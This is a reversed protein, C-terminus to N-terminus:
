EVGVSRHPVNNVITFIFGILLSYNENFYTIYHPAGNGMLPNYESEFYM